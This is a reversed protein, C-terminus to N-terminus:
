VPTGALPADRHPFAAEPDECYALRECLSSYHVSAGLERILEPEVARRPRVAITGSSRGSDGSLAIRGFRELAAPDFPLALSTTLSALGRTPELVFEEYSLQPVGEAADLMALCRRCYEDLGAFAMQRVWETNRLSLWCDLPHRVTLLRLQRTHGAMAEAVTFREGPLAGTFFDLHDHSRVVLRQGQSAATRLAAELGGRFAALVLVPDRGNHPLSLQQCLDSPQYVRPTAPLLRLHAFPHAENLLLVQPLSAVVKAFLTGGSCAWHHLLRLRPPSPHRDSAV